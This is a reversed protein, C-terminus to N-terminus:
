VMPDRQVLGAIDGAEIRDQHHIDPLMSVQEVVFRGLPRLIDLREKRIDIPCPQSCRRFPCVERCASPRSPHATRVELRAGNLNPCKHGADRSRVYDAELRLTFIVTVGVAAAAKTLKCDVDLSKLFALLDDRQEKTIDHKQLNKKDLHDNPKGGGLMLDVAEGLTAVSGDHFYPASKSIDRLTPTKFAGTDEPKKTVTFRGVDPEKQDMGIGVNHYQQDTLLM